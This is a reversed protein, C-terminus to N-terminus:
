VLQIHQRYRVLALRICLFSAGLLASRLNNQVGKFIVDNTM